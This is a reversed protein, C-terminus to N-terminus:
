KIDKGGLILKWHWPEVRYQTDAINETTYSQEFDYNEAHRILWSYEPLTDFDDALEPREVGDARVGNKMPCAAFDVALGTQHESEGPKATISKQEENATDWMKKQEDFSRYGSTVVLCVGDSQADDILQEVLVKAKIDLYQKTDLWSARVSLPLVEPTFGEPLCQGRYIHKDVGTLKCTPKVEEPKKNFSNFLAVGVIFTVTLVVIAVMSYYVSSTEKKIM